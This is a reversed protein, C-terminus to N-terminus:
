ALGSKNRLIDRFVDRIKNINKTGKPRGCKGAIFKMYSENTYLQKYMTKYTKLEDRTNENNYKDNTIVRCFILFGSDRDPHKCCTTYQKWDKAISGSPFEIGQKSKRAIISMVVDVIIDIKEWVDRRVYEIFMNTIRKKDDITIKKYQVLTKFRDNRNGTITPTFISTYSPDHKASSQNDEQESDEQESDEQESDEQEAESYEIQTDFNYNGFITYICTMTILTRNFNLINLTNNIPNTIILQPQEDNRIQTFPNYVLKYKGTITSCMNMNTRTKHKENRSFLDNLMGMGKISSYYRCMKVYNDNTMFRIISLTMNYISHAYKNKDYLLMFCLVVLCVIDNTKNAPNTINYICHASIIRNFVSEFREHETGYDKHYIYAIPELLSMKYSQPPLSDNVSKIDNNINELQVIDRIHIDHTALYRRRFLEYRYDKYFTGNLSRNHEYIERNINSVRYSYKVCRNYESTDNCRILRRCKLNNMIASLQQNKQINLYLAICLLHYRFIQHDYDIIENNTKSDRTGCLDSYWQERGCMELIYETDKTTMNDIFYDLKYDTRIDCIITETSQNMNLVLMGNFSRTYAINKFSWLMLSGNDKKVDPFKNFEKKGPLIVIVYKRGRGKATHITTIHTVHDFSEMEHKGHDDAGFLHCYIDEDFKRHKETEIERRKIWVKHGNKRSQWWENHKWYDTIDENLREMIINNKLIPTIIMWDDPTTHENCRSRIYRFVREHFANYKEDIIEINGDSDKYIMNDIFDTEINETTDIEDDICDMPQILSSMGNETMSQIYKENYHIEKNVFDKIKPNHARRCKYEEHEDFRNVEFENSGNIITCYLNSFRCIDGCGYISQNIDGIFRFVIGEICRGCTIFLNLYEQQLDQAEDILVMSNIMSKLKFTNTTVFKINMAASRFVDVGSLRKFNKSGVCSYLFSDVTAITVNTIVEGNRKVNINYFRTDDNNDDNRTDEYSYTIGNISENMLVKLAKDKIEDKASNTKTIVFYNDHKAELVTLWISYTKGSGAGKQVFEFVPKNKLVTQKLLGSFIDASPLEDHENIYTYFVSEGICGTVEYSDINRKLTIPIILGNFSLYVHECDTFSDIYEDCYINNDATVVMHGTMDLIWVTLKGNDNYVKNKHTISDVSKNSHQFEFCINDIVADAILGGIKIETNGTFYAEMRNHWQGPM